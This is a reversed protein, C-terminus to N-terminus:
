GDSSLWGQLARRIRAKTVGSDTTQVVILERGAAVWVRRLKGSGSLETDHVLAADVSDIREYAGSPGLANRPDVISEVLVRQQAVARAATEADDFGYVAVTTTGMPVDVISSWGTRVAQAVEWGARGQTATFETLPAYEGALGAATTGWLLTTIMQTRRAVEDASPPAPQPLSALVEDAPPPAEGLAWVADLGETELVGRLWTRGGGYLRAVEDDWGRLQLNDLGQWSDVIYQPLTERSTGCVEEQILSAFGENWLQFDRFSVSEPHVHQAVLAHTLEHALVCRSTALLLESPAMSEAWIDEMSDALLYIKDDPMYLALASAAREELLSRLEQEDVDPFSTLTAAVGAEVADARTGMVLAPLHDFERKAADAVIPRLVGILRGATEADLTEARAGAAFMWLVTM